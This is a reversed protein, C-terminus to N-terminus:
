VLLGSFDIHIQLTPHRRSKTFKIMEICPIEFVLLSTDYKNIIFSIKIYFSEYKNIKYYFTFFRTENSM